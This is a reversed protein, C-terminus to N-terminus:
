TAPSLILLRFARSGWLGFSTVVAGWYMILNRIVEATAKMNNRAWVQFIDSTCRGELCSQLTTVLLLRKLANSKGSTYVKLFSLPNISSISAFFDSLSRRKGKELTEPLCVLELVGLLVSLASGVLFNRRGDSGLRKLLEVEVYPGLVIAVGAYSMLKAGMQAMQAPTSIDMLSAMAMTSGGFSTFVTKGIKCAMLLMLSRSGASYVVFNLLAGMIPGVLLMSKRGVSDSLKGGIQNVLLAAVGTLASCTGFSSAVLATDGNAAATFLLVESQLSLVNAFVTNRCRRPGGPAGCAIRM